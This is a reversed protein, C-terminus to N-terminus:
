GRWAPWVTTPWDGRLYQAYVIGLWQRLANPALLLSALVPGAEQAKFALQVAEAGAAIDVSRVLLGPTDTTSQVPAQPKLAVVAAQQQFELM